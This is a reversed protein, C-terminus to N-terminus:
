QIELFFLESDVSSDLKLASPPRVKEMLSTSLNMDQKVRAAMVGAFEAAIRELAPICSRM